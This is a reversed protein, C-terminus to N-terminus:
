MGTARSRFSQLVENVKELAQPQKVDRLFNRGLTVDDAPFIHQEIVKKATWRGPHGEDDPYRQAELEPASLLQIDMLVKKVTASQSPAAQVEPNTFYAVVPNSYAGSGFLGESYLFAGGVMVIVVIIMFGILLKHM